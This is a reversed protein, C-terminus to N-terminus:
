TGNRQERNSGAALVEIFEAVVSVQEDNEGTLVIPSFAPNSPVLRIEAHQWSDGVKVKTSEYRKVTYRQGTEADVADLLQALV